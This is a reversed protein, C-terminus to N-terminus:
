AQSTRQLRNRTSCVLWMALAGFEFTVVDAYPRAPHYIEVLWLQALLISALGVFQLVIRM